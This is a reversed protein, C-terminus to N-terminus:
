KRGGAPATRARVHQGSAPIATSANSVQSLASLPRTPSSPTIDGSRLGVREFSCSSVSCFRWMLQSVVNLRFIIVHKPFFFFICHLKVRRFAFQNLLAGCGRNQAPFQPSKFALSQYWESKKHPHNLFYSLFLYMTSGQKSSSIPENLSSLGPTPLQHAATNIVNGSTKFSWVSPLSNVASAQWVLWIPGTFNRENGRAKGAEEEWQKQM